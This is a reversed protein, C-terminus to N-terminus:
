AFCITTLRVGCKILVQQIRHITTSVPVDSTYNKLFM